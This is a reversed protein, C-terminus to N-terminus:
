GPHKPLYFHHECHADSVPTTEAVDLDFGVLANLLSARERHTPRGLDVPCAIDAAPFRKLTTTLSLIHVTNRNPIIAEVYGNLITAPSLAGQQLLNSLQLRLDISKILVKPTSLYCQALYSVQPLRSSTATRALLPPYIFRLGQRKVVCRCEVAEVKGRGPITEVVDRDRWGLALLDHSIELPQVAVVVLFRDTVIKLADLEPRVAEHTKTPTESRLDHAISPSGNKPPAIGRRGLSPM